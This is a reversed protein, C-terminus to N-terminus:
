QDKHRQWYGTFDVSKKRGLANGAVRKVQDGNSVRRNDERWAAEQAYRILYDGAIHHHHSMEGRRLRAFYSEAWNTCAGDLSYAQQHDIRKVEYKAHLENWAPAEDALIAQRLLKARSSTSLLMALNLFARFDFISLQPVYKLDVFDVEDVKAQEIATKLLKLRNGKVLEYGNRALEEGHQAM